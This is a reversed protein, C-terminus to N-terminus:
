RSASSLRRAVARHVAFLSDSFSFLGDVLERGGAYTLAGEGAQNTSMDFVITLVDGDSFVADGNDPDALTARVISPATVGAEGSMLLEATADAPPSSGDVNKINGSIRLRSAFDGGWLCRAASRKDANTLPDWAPNFRTFGGGTLTVATGRKPGDPVM